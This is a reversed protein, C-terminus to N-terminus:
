FGASLVARLPAGSYDAQTKWRNAAEVAAGFETDAQGARDPDFEYKMAYRLLGWLYVGYHRELVANSDDPNRLPAPQAFWTMNVSQFQGPPTLAITPHPLFEICDGVLRYGTVGGGRNVNPGTFHDELTLLAGSAADYIAEMTIFDSPLQIFNADIPQTAREVMCRARLVEAIETELMSMWGALRPGLDGRNAWGILDAQLQALSAV